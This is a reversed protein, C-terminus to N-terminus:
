MPSVFYEGSIAGEFFGRDHEYVHIKNAYFEAEKILGLDQMLELGTYPGQRQGAKSVLERFRSACSHRAFDTFAMTFRVWHCIHRADLSGAMQRWEFTQINGGTKGAPLFRQFGVAGRLSTRFPVREANGQLLLALEEMSACSWIRRLQGTKLLGFDEPVWEEMTGIRELGAADLINEEQVFQAASKTALESCATLLFCYHNNARSPHQLDMIMRETVWYLSAFKKFTLLSFPEDGRGVHVHIGTTKNLSVRFQGRIARVVKHIKETYEQQSSMVTSSIECGAWHLFPHFMETGELSPDHELRWADYVPVNDHPAYFVDDDAHRFPLGTELKLQQIMHPDLGRAIPDYPTARYLIRSDEPSPDPTGLRVYAVLFELEVGCTLTGAEDNDAPIIEDLKSVKWSEM